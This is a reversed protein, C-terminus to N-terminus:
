CPIYFGLAFGAVLAAIEQTATLKTNKGAISVSLEGSLKRVITAVIIGRGIHVYYCMMGTSAPVFYAVLRLIGEAAFGVLLIALLRASTSRMACEMIESMIKTLKRYRRGSQRGSKRTVTTKDSPSESTSLRHTGTSLGSRDASNSVVSDRLSIGQEAANLEKEAAVHSEDQHSDATPEDICSQQTTESQSRSTPCSPKSRRNRSQENNGTM